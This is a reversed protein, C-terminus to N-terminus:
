SAWPQRRSLAAQLAKRNRNRLVARAIVSRGPSFLLSILFIGFLVLVIVPGTPLRGFSVSLYVGIASGLGGITASLAVMAPLTNVWQRAAAPPTVVFAVMLILGVAKVGIVVAMVLAAAILADLLKPRFGAIISQDRDFTGLAFEKWFVLMILLAAGGIVAITIVDEVTLVSANGFLYDQIGGKGPFPGNSIIRLLIMGVAFFMTLMVAMSTDIKIRSKQVVLNALFLACLGAVVAGIVLVLMNRGDGGFVTVSLLFAGLAGPLAAHAIVDSALSQKRLYAFCGLAGAIVGILVTGILVTRYIHNSLFELLSM